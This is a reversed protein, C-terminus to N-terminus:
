VRFPRVQKEVLYAQLRTYTTRTDSSSGCSSLLAVPVRTEGGAATTQMSADGNLEAPRRPAVFHSWLHNFGGSMDYELFQDQM